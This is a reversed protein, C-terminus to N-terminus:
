LPARTAAERRQTSPLRRDHTTRRWEANVLCSLFLITSLCPQCALVKCPFGPPRVSAGVLPRIRQHCGHLQTPHVMEEENGARLNGEVLLARRFRPLSLPRSRAQDRHRMFPSRQVRGDPARHHRALRRRGCDVDVNPREVIPSADVGCPASTVRNQHHRASPGPGVRAGHGTTAVAAYLPHLLWPVLPFDDPLVSLMVVSQLM